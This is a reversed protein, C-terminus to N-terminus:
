EVSALPLDGFLEAVDAPDVGSLKERLADFDSKELLERVETESVEVDDITISKSM